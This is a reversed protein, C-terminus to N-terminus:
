LYLLKCKIFKKFSFFDIDYSTSDDCNYLTTAEYRLSLQRVTFMTQEVHIQTSQRTFHSHIDSNLSFMNIIVSPSLNNLVKYLVLYVNYTHLKPLPLINLTKFLDLTHARPRVGLIIRIARKQLIHLPGLYTSHTNGWIEVCYNLYPHIFSYYLDQLTKSDFFKRARCLIGVGRAVKSKIHSIHSHYNLHEDIIVGLFRTEAVRDITQNSIFIDKNTAPGSKSKTFIIYHTKKINLTLRNALLWDTLKALEINITDIVHDLNKGSVFANSDDAFLILFIKKSVHIMDNIYLLFFLPGLISGQPVGCVLPRPDSNSQNFNVYQSRGTLYSSIWQLPTNSIGYRKLKTLLINHNITDFAKSFDLFVGIISEEKDLAESVKDTLIALASSTSHGKRFGFQYDYLINQDAVFDLLQSSFISEFVKSFSNLVSVPRYNSVLQSDGSKFIPVVKAVKLETPFIGENLSLNITHTLAKVISASSLKIIKASIDDPGASSNKLKSIITSVKDQHVQTLNFQHDFSDPIFQSPNVESPPLKQALQPGINSFFSNFKNAITFPDTILNDGSKFQTQTLTSKNKNIVQKIIQWSKKLNARNQKLLDQYYDKEVKRLLNTLKNKYIKYTDEYCCQKLSLKYLWNKRAISNKLALSLWPKRSKYVSKHKTLPFSSYYLSTYTKNDSGGAIDLGEQRMGEAVRM